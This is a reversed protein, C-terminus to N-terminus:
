IISICFSLYFHKVAGEDKPQVVLQKDKVSLYFSNSFYLTRKIM